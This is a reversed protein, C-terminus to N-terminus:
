VERWPFVDPPLDNPLEYDNIVYNLRQGEDETTRLCGTIRTDNYRDYIGRWKDYIVTAM